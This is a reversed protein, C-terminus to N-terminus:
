DTSYKPPEDLERSWRRTVDHGGGGGGIRGGLNEYGSVYNHGRHGGSM